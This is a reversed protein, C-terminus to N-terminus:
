IVGARWKPKIGVIFTLLPEVEVNGMELSTLSAVLPPRTVKTWTLKLKQLHNLPQLQALEANGMDTDSVDLAHLAQLQSFCRSSGSHSSIMGERMSLVALSRLHMISGSPIKTGAVGYGDKGRMCSGELVCYTKIM